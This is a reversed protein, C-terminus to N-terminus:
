DFQSCNADPHSKILRHGLTVLFIRMSSEVKIDTTMMPTVHPSTDKSACIKRNSLIFKGDRAQHMKIPRYHLCAHIM